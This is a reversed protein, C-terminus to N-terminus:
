GNLGLRSRAAAILRRWAPRPAPRAAGRVDCDVDVRHIEYGKDFLGETLMDAELHDIDDPGNCQRGQCRRNHLFLAIWDIDPADDALPEGGHRRYTSRDFTLVHM